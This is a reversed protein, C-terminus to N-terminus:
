KEQYHNNKIYQQFCASISLLQKDTKLPILLFRQKLSQLGKIIDTSSLSLFQKIEERSLFQDQRSIELLIEQEVQSLRMWISNFKSNITETLLFNNETLFESVRGEFIDNILIAISKLYTPNGEYFKILQQWTENDKLNYNNLIIQQDAQDLNSLELCYIPYIESDLSIMEECKEQSILILCSQHEIETVMQFLTKYDQYEPQYQGAFQKLAFIEQINDLIILCRKETLLELFLNLVNSKNFDLCGPNLETLIETIVSSLSYSLKLNKWIIADFPLNCTDVFHKVLASKGIGSIGLVSILRTNPNDIWESLTSLENTRGYFKTIKPAQRVNQYFNKQSIEPKQNVEKNQNQSPNPCLTFHSNIGIGVVQSSNFTTALREISWCFNSKTVTENEGLEKLETSLIEYLKRSVNGIHNESEYSFEGAIESYTQGQWIGQVVNKQLDNLHKGTHKFVLQDILQLAETVTM